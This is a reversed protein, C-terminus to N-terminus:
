DENIVPSNLLGVLDDEGEAAMVRDWEDLAAQQEDASYGVEAPIPLRPADAGDPEFPEARMAAHLCKLLHRFDEMSIYAVPELKM